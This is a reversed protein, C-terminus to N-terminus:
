KRILKVVIYGDAENIQTLEVNVMIRGFDVDRNENLALVLYEYGSEKQIDLGVSTVPPEQDADAIRNLQIYNDFGVPHDLIIRNATGPDAEGGREYLRIYIPKSEYVCAPCAKQLSAQKIQYKGAPSKFAEGILNGQEDAVDVSEQAQEACGALFLVVALLGLAVFLIKKMM